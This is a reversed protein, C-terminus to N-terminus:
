RASFRSSQTKQVAALECRRDRVSQHDVAGLMIEYDQVAERCWRGSITTGYSCTAVRSPGAPRSPLQFHHPQRLAGLRVQAIKVTRFSQIDPHVDALAAPAPMAPMKVQVDQRSPRAIGVEHGRRRSERAAPPNAPSMPSSSPPTRPMAPSHHRHCGRLTFRRSGQRLSECTSLEQFCTACGPAVANGTEVEANVM